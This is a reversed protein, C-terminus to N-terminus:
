WRGPESAAFAALSCSPDVPFFQGGGVVDVLQEYALYANVASLEQVLQAEPLHAMDDFAVAAAVQEFQLHHRFHHECGDVSHTVRFAHGRLLHERFEELDFVVGSRCGFDGLLVCFVKLFHHVVEFPSLMSWGLRHKKEHEVHHNLRLITLFYVFFLLFAIFICFIHSFFQM